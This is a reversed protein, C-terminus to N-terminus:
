DLKGLYFKKYEVSDMNGEGYCEVLAVHNIIFEREFSKSSLYELGKKYGIEDLDAFAITVHPIYNENTPLWRKYKQSINTKVDNHLNLLDENIEVNLWIVYPTLQGNIAGRWNDIGAYGAIKAKKVGHESCIKKLKEDLEFLESDDVEVVEGITIHPLWDVLCKKSGTIVSIEKQIQRVLKFDEGTLYSVFSFKNIM